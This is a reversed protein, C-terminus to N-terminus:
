RKGFLNTGIRIITSGEEIALEYDNSMGMSLIDMNLNFRTNLEKELNNLDKFYNRTINDDDVIMPITMLGKLILNDMHLIEDILEDINATLVGSKNPDNSINVEILINVKKNLNGAVKNIEKALKISDVSHILEVEGGLLKKVKNTQLHGIMHWKIDDNEKRKEDLEQVKNEGFNDLGLKQAEEIMSYPKTKSVALLTIESEDRGCRLCANKINERIVELNDKIM